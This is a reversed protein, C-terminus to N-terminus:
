KKQSLPKKNKLQGKLYDELVMAHNFTPNKSAYLLTVNGQKALDLIPQCHEPYDKLEQAYRESFEEQHGDLDQHYWKRLDNSPAADKAWLDMILNEKLVGRPWLRDVFIRKGDELSVADYVRKLIIM